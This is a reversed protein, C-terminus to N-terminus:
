RSLVPRRRALFARSVDLALVVYRRRPADEFVARTGMSLVGASPLAAIAMSLADRVTPGSYRRLSEDTKLLTELHLYHHSDRHRVTPDGREVAAVAADLLAVLASTLEDTRRLETQLLRIVRDAGARALRGSQVLPALSRSVEAVVDAHSNM